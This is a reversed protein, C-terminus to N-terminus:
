SDIPQAGHVFGPLPRSPRQAPVSLVSHPSCTQHVRHDDCEAEADIGEDAHRHGDADSGPQECRPRRRRTVGVSTSTTGAHGCPQRMQLRELGLRDVDHALDGGLQRLGHQQEAAALVRDHQQAEGLLREPRTAERERQHVDVRAVVEGLDDLKAVAADGLEALPQDDRRHLLRDVGPADRLLGARPRRAVAQLRRRQEVRDLLM